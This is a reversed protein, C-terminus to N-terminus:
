SEYLEKHYFMSVMLTATGKLVVHELLSPWAVALIGNLLVIQGEPSLVINM